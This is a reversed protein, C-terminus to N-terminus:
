AEKSALKRFEDISVEKEAIAISGKIYDMIKRESVQEYVYRMEERNSLMRQASQVLFSDDTIPVGYRAFQAAMIAKAEDILDQNEVKLEGEKFLKGEILQWKLGTAFSEYENNLQEDTIPKENSAKIWRKLFADPLTLETRKLLWETIDRKFMRNSEALFSSSLQEKIKSRFETEDQIQDKGFVKDFLEQDVDAPTLAKVDEVAFSFSSSITGLQERTISLMRLLDQEDESLKKPDLKFQDGIKAGVLQKKTAEDKVFEISVTTQATVGGELENGEADLETLKGILLDNDGAVEPSSVKGYRRALDAIQQNIMEEDVKIIYFSEKDKKSLQIDFVPALGLEYSFSFASPNDWDGGKSEDNAPLPNGLVELKNTEIHQTLADNILKNIEDALLAKGFRKKVLAAPVKGPRFGPLAVKKGYDKLAKQYSEMYDDATLDIHVKANLQDLNEQQIKM